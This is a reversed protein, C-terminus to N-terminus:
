KKKLPLRGSLSAIRRKVFEQHFIVFFVYPPYLVMVIEFLQILADMPSSLHFLGSIGIAGAILPLVTGISRGAMYVDGNSENYIKVGMDDLVWVISLFVSVLISAMFFLVLRAPLFELLNELREAFIMSLSIGQLPRIFWAVPKNLEQCSGSSTTVFQGFLSQNKVMNVVMALLKPLIM